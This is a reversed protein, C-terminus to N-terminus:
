KKLYQLWEEADGEDFGLMGGLVDIKGASKFGVRVADEFTQMDVEGDTDVLGSGEVIPRLKKAMVVTGAGITLKALPSKAKGQLVTLAFEVTKSMLDDLKM